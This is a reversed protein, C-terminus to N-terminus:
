ISSHTSAPQMAMMKRMQLPSMVNTTVQTVHANTHIFLMELSCWRFQAKCYESWSKFVDAKWDPHQDTFPLSGRIPQSQFRNLCTLIHLSYLRILILVYKTDKQKGSPDVFAALVFMQVGMIRQMDSIFKTM